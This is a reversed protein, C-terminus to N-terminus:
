YCSDDEWASFSRSLEQLKVASEISAYTLTGLVAEAGAGFKTLNVQNILRLKQAENSSYPHNPSTSAQALLTMTSENSELAEIADTLPQHHASSNEIESDDM